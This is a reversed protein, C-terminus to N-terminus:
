RLIHYEQFDVPLTEPSYLFESMSPLSPIRSLDRCGKEIGISIRSHLKFLHKLPSLSIGVKVLELEECDPDAKYNTTDQPLHSM